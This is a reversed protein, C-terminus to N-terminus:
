PHCLAGNDTFSGATCIQSSNMATAISANAANITDNTTAEGSQIMAPSSEVLEGISAIQTSASDVTAKIQPDNLAGSALAQNYLNLFAAQEPNASDNASSLVSNGYESAFFYATPGNYGVLGPLELGSYSKGNVNFKMNGLANMDGNALQVAQSFMAEIQAMKHGQNSLQMLIDYQNQDIKGKALMAAATAALQSALLETSGNSGTTQLKQSLSEELQAQDASSLASIQGSSIASQLAHATMAKNQKAQLDDRISAMAANLNSSMFQLTAISVVVVLAGVIAYETITNGKDASRGFDYRIRPLVFPLHDTVWAKKNQMM